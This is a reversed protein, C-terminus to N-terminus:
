RRINRCYLIRLSLFLHIFYSMSCSYIMFSYVKAHFYATHQRGAGPSTAHARRACGAGTPAARPGCWDTASSEAPGGPLHLQPSLFVSMSCKFINVKYVKIIDKTENFKMLDERKMGGLVCILCSCSIKMISNNHSIRCICVFVYLIMSCISFSNLSIPSSCRGVVSIGRAADLSATAWPGSRPERLSSARSPGLGTAFKTLTRDVEDGIKM